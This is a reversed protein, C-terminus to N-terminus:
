GALGLKENPPLSTRRCLPSSFNARAPWVLVLRTHLECKSSYGFVKRLINTAWMLHPTHTTCTPLHTPTNKYTCGEGEEVGRGRGEGEGEKGEGGRGRGEGGERQSRCHRRWQGHWPCVTHSTNTQSLLCSTSIQATGLWLSM